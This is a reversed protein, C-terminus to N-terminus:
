GKPERVWGMGKKLAAWGRLGTPLSAENDFGTKAGRHWDRLMRTSAAIGCHLLPSELAAAVITGVRERNFSLFAM